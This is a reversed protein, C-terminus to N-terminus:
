QKSPLLLRMKLWQAPVMGTEEEEEKCWSCLRRRELFKSGDRERGLGLLLTSRSGSGNIHYKILPLSVSAIRLAMDASM